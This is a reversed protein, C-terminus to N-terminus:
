PQPNRSWRFENDYYGRTYLANYNGNSVHGDALLVNAQNNHRFYAKSYSDSCDPGCLLSKGGYKYLTDAMMIKTGAQDILKASPYVNYVWTWVKINDSGCRNMGYSTCYSSLSWYGSEIGEWTILDSACKFIPSIRYRYPAPDLIGTGAYNLATLKRCWYMNEGSSTDNWGPYWGDYDDSYLRFAQYVQKMNNKCSAQKGKERAKSLAPLLMSALIAIIAIVVLLEILTFVKSDTKM